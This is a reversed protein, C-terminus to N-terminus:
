GDAPSKACFNRRAKSPRLLRASSCDSDRQCFSASWYSIHEAFIFNAEALVREAAGEIRNIVPGPAKRM